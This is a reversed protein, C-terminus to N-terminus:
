NIIIKSLSNKVYEARFAQMLCDEKEVGATYKKNFLERIARNDVSQFDSYAWRLSYPRCKIILDDLALVDKVKILKLMVGWKLKTMLHTFEEYSLLKCSNLVAVARVIEDEVKLKNRNYYTLSNIQEINAIEEVYGQVTRIIDVESKGLTVENSVQYLCSQSGSGEGFVGRVTLGREKAKHYLENMMDNRSLTPLFMMASARLGTGLNTPCATLFGYNQSKSFKLNNNLWRDLPALKSYATLLDEGKLICQSRIHDEENIMVSLPSNKLVAVAGSFTNKRLAESIVYDEKLREAHEATIKSIEYLDFSGFQSLLSFTKNIIEKAVARDTLTSAFNYGSLNRALRVRCTVVTGEYFKKM